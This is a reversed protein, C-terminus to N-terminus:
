RPQSEHCPFCKKANDLTSHAAAIENLLQTAEQPHKLERKKVERIRGRTAERIAEEDTTDPDLGLLVRADPPRPGPPIGLWETYFDDGSRDRSSM